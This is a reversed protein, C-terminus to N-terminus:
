AEELEYEPLPGFFRNTLYSLDYETSDRGRDFLTGYVALRGFENKRCQGFDEAKVGSLVKYWKGEVLDEPRVRPLRPKSNLAAQELRRCLGEIITEGDTEYEKSWWEQSNHIGDATDEIIREFEVQLESM